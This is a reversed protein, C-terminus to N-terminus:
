GHCPWYAFFRDNLEQCYYDPDVLVGKGQQDGRRAAIRGAARLIGNVCQILVPDYFSYVQGALTNHAAM